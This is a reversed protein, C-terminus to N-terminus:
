LVLRFLRKGSEAFGKMYLKVNLTSLSSCKSDLPGTTVTCEREKVEGLPSVIIYIHVSLTIIHM